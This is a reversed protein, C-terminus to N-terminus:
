YVFNMTYYSNCWRKHELSSLFDLVPNAKLFKCFETGFKENDTKMIEELKKFEEFKKNLYDRKGAFLKETKTDADYDMISILTDETLKTTMDNAIFKLLTDTLENIGIVVIHMRKINEDIREASIIDGM